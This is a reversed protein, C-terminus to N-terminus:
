KQKSIQEKLSLAADLHKARDAISMNEFEEPTFVGQAPNAPNQIGQFTKVTTKPQTNGLVDIAKMLFQLQAQPALNEPMMDLAQKPARGKVAEVVSTIAAGLDANQEDKENLQKQLSTLAGKVDETTQLELTQKEEKITKLDSRTEKLAASLNEYETKWDRGTSMDNSSSSTTNMDEQSENSKTAEVM